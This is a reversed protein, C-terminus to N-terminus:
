KLIYSNVIDCIMDSLRSRYVLDTNFALLCIENRKNKFFDEFGEDSTLSKTLDTPLITLHSFLCSEILGFIKFERISDEFQEMPLIDNIELGHQKLFYGLMSYYSVLLSDLHESRFKQSTPITLLTIVDLIPPAYRALQFDVIRSQVPHDNEYKFLLNNAWLDGHSFVNLYKKTPIVFDFVKKMERPFQQLIYELRNSDKFEPMIKIIECLAVVANDFNERRVCNSQSPYANEEVIEPYLESIKQQSSTEFIISAAHLSALSSLACKLHEFDLLGSREAGMRFGMEGLHEFVLIDDKAYYCRASFDSQREQLKPLLNRYVSVEKKFVGFEELYRQRSAIDSPATKIFFTLEQPVESPNTQIIVSLVEHRGLFGAPSDSASKLSYSLLEVGYDIKQNSYRECLDEVVTPSLNSSSM